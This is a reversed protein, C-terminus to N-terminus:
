YVALRQGNSWNYLGVRFQYSEVANANVGPLTYRGIVIDGPQWIQPPYGEREGPAHDDQVVINGQPDLLHVFASYNFDPTQLAQWYLNLILQDDTHDVTYGRLLIADGFQYTTKHPLLWARWKPQTIMPYAPAIVGLPMYLAIALMILSLLLAVGSQWRAAVWSCLGISMLIMLPALIPFIYRGQYWSDNFRTIAWLIYGEYLLIVLVLAILARQQIQALTRWYRGLFFYLGALAAWILTRIWLYFWAPSWINMWGYRGWFSNFQTAFFHRLDNSTLPAQRLNVRFVDVYVSWGLLDGYLLWNRVFWWGALTLVPIGIALGNRVMYGFSRRQIATGVLLLAALLALVLGNVKALTAVGLWLSWEM